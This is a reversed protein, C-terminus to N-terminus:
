MYLLSNDDDDEIAMHNRMVMEMLQDWGEEYYWEQIYNVNNMEVTIISREGENPYDLADCVLIITIEGNPLNRLLEMTRHCYIIEDSKLVVVHTIEPIDAKDTDKHTCNSCTPCTGDCIGEDCRCNDNTSKAVDETELNIKKM